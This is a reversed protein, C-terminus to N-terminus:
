YMRTLRIGTYFYRLIQDYSWGAQSRQIAARMPMGVGHGRLPQGADDPDSVSVLWPHDKAHWVEDWSRTRGDSSAFYPTIAIAGNYTAVQGATAQQGTTLLPGLAERHAGSYIQNAGTYPAVADTSAGLDFPEGWAPGDSNHRAQVALAYTRYAVTFAKYVEPPLGETEEGIGKVYDELGVEDVVWLKNTKTSYVAELVGHYDRTITSLDLEQALGGSLPILRVPLASSLTQQGLVVTYSAPSTATVRVQQGGVGTGLQRGSSDTLNFPGTATLTVSNAPPSAGFVAVRLTPVAPMPALAMEVSIRAPAAFPLPPPGGAVSAASNDGSSPGPQAASAQAARQALLEDGLLGLQIAGVRMEFRARQFYQVTAGNSDFPESTPYGYVDLGGGSEFYKLFPGALNHSTEQYFRAGPAPPAKDFPQPALMDGLLGLEVEYPTGAFEPHYEFRARQFYQVTWGNEVIEETRPYGFNDLGGHTDFFRKFGFSLSHGTQPYFTTTSPPAAPTAPPLAAAQAASPAFFLAAALVAAM